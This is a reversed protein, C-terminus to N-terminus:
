EGAFLKGDPFVNRPKHYISHGLHRVRHVLVVNGLHFGCGWFPHDRRYVCLKRNWFDDPDYVVVNRAGYARDSRVGRRVRYLVPEPERGNNRGFDNGINGILGEPCQDM